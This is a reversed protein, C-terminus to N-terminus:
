GYNSDFSGVLNTSGGKSAGKKMFSGGYKSFLDAAGSLLTGAAATDGADIAGVSAANASARGSKISWENAEIQARTARQKMLGNAVETQANSRGQLKIRSMLNIIGPDSGGGSAAAHATITSLVDNTKMNWQKARDQGVRVPMWENVELNNNQNQLSWEANTETQAIEAARAEGAAEQGAAGAVASVGTMILSGWMLPM